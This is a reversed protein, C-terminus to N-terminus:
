SRYIDGLSKQPTGPMPLSNYWEMLVRLVALLLSGPLNCWRWFALFTNFTLIPQKPLFGVFAYMSFRSWKVNEERYVLNYHNQM